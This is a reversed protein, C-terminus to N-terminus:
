TFFYIDTKQQILNVQLGWLNCCTYVNELHKKKIECPTKDLVIDM